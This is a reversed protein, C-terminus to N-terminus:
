KILLLYEVWTLFVTLLWILISKRLLIVFFRNFLPTKLKLINSGAFDIQRTFRFLWNFDSEKTTKKVRTGKQGIVTIPVLHQWLSNRNIWYKDLLQCFSWSYGSIARNTLLRYGQIYSWGSESNKNNSQKLEEYV